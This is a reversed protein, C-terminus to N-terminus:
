GHWGFLVFATACGCRSGWTLPCTRQLPERRPTPPHYPRLTGRRPPQGFLRTFQSTRRVDSKLCDGSNRIAYLGTGCFFM